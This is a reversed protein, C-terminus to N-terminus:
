YQLKLLTKAWSLKLISMLRRYEKLINEKETHTGYIKRVLQYHRDLFIYGFDYQNGAAKTSGAVDATDGKDLYIRTYDLIESASQWRSRMKTEMENIAKDNKDVTGHFTIRGGVRLCALPQLLSNRLSSHNFHRSSGLAINMWPKYCGQVYQSQCFLLHLIHLLIPLSEPGMILVSKTNRPNRGSTDLHITLAPFILFKPEKTSVIPLPPVDDGCCEPWNLENVYLVIWMNEEQLILRTEEHIQRNVALVAPELRYQPETDTEDFAHSTTLLLRWIQNRSEGPITLLSPTYPASASKEVM